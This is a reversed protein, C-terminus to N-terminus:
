IRDLSVMIIWSVRCVFLGIRGGLSFRNWYYGYGFKGGNSVM